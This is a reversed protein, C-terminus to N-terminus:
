SAAAAAALQQKRLLGQRRSCSGTTTSTQKGTNIGSRSGRCDPTPYHPSDFDGHSCSYAFDQGTQFCGQGKQSNAAKYFDHGRSCMKFCVTTRFSRCRETEATPIQVRSPRKQSATEVERSRTPFATEGGRKIDQWNHYFLKSVTLLIKKCRIGSLM